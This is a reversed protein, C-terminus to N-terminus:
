AVDVSPAYLRALADPLAALSRTRRFQFADISRALAVCQHFHRPPLGSTGIFRAAYANRVLEAFTDALSLRDLGAADGVRLAFLGGLPVPAAALDDHVGWARKPLAENMVALDPLPVELAAAADPWLKMQPIGPLAHPVDGGLDIAVIDDALLRCGRRVLHAATTSKGAGKRGVFILARGDREVASAHLVLLGRQHLLVGLVPGLLFQRLWSPAVDGHLCYAIERGARVRFTGVDQWSLRAERETAEVHRGEVFAEAPPAPLRAERVVVDAPGSAAPLEPFPATSHIRLGYAISEYM